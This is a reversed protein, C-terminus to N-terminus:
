AYYQAQANWLESYLGGNSMLKEHNGQEVIKGEDFVIINDCFRCSSMRHSIYISTKGEVMQDFKQYIEFEAVPDLASTPEDMIVFPADKYLSRAIAIKQAEGGSIEVGNEDDYQYLPTDLGKEMKDFREKFGADELCKIAREKDYEISGSVNEGLPFSFLNFDQFVIAFLKEYEETDYYRIDVGNLLIQGETPEYLRCLLKIFTTKGAGNKGVVANKTGLTIKQNVHRLAWTESNAYKFSVDRFEIEFINDDRKETPITGDYRKNQIKMYDYFFSLYRSEMKLSVFNGSIGTISEVLKTYSSVYMICKGASILSFVAKLGVYAYSALQMFCQSFIPVISNKLDKNIWVNGEKELKDNTEQVKRTMLKQMKYLRIYKGISYNFILDFWYSFYRNYSVNKEFFEMQLSSSKKNTKYSMFVHFALVLLMVFFSYWKNLFLGLGNLYGTEGAAQPIFLPVILILSYVITAIKEILGALNEIFIRIDGGAMMGDKAKKYMDLTEHKELIDFDLGMTKDVLMKNIRQTLEHKKVWSILELGWRILVLASDVCMMILVTKFISQFSDMRFLGDLVLSSFYITVFPQGAAILKLILVFTIYGPVIRHTLSLVKRVTGRTNESNITKKNSM